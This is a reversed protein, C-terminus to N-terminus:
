TGSELAAIERKLKKAKEMFEASREPEEVRKLVGKLRFRDAALRMSEEKIQRYVHSMVDFAWDPDAHDLTAGGGPSAELEEIRALMSAEFPDAGGFWNQALYARDGASKDFIRRATTLDARFKEGGFTRVAQLLGDRLLSRGHDGYAAVRGNMENLFLMADRSLSENARLMEWGDVGVGIKAAFDKVVDGGILHEPGFLHTRVNEAGFAAAYAELSPRLPRVRSLTVAEDVFDIRHGGKISQQILSEWFTIPDRLYIHITTRTVGISVLWDHFRRAGAEDLASLDEACLLLRADPHAHVEDAISALVRRRIEEIEDETKIGRVRVMVAKLPESSFSTHVDYHNHSYAPYLYGQELLSSRYRGFVRQISTTGTKHVGVHVVAETM